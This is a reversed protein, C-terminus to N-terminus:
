ISNEDEKREGSACHWNLDVTIEIIWKAKRMLVECCNPNHTGDFLHKCYKCRVVEEADIAPQADIADYNAVIWNEELYKKYADADILRM